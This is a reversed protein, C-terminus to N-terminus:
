ADGQVKRARIGEGTFVHHFQLTVAAGDDHIEQLCQAASQARSLRPRSLKRFPGEEVVLISRAWASAM